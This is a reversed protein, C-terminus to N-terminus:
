APRGARAAPAAAARTSSARRRRRVPGARRRGRQARRVPDVPLLATDEVGKAMVAGTLQPFRQALEDGPRAAPRHARGPDPDPRAPAPRGRVPGRGPPAAGDARYRGTSRSAPPWSPSRRGRRGAVEPVLAALRHLEAAFLATARGRAQLAHTLEPWSTAGGTLTTDLATFAASPPRTSSSAASRPSPTTGPPARRGALGAAGRRVRPDERGGAVRGARRRAAAGPLRGPRAARRPPRGPHRRRRRGRGLAPGRRADRRVGGPGRGAARGPRHRRLVAPLQARHRRAALRGARLAAPRAGRAAHRRRHRRRDPVPARLLAARRGRDRLADLDGDDASCRSWCGTRPVLRHRVLRRVGVGRGSRLVDWWAPNAAPVAVGVHNPVIDVVLGLGAARLAAVLRRRGAEGGLEPNVARHDVVDYGHASGPTATLLPASYLHSVGLDALYGALDATADLDFSPASRCGTPSRDATAM